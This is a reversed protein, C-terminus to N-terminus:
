PSRCHGARGGARVDAAAFGAVSRAALLAEVGFVRRVTGATAAALGAVMAPIALAAAAIALVAALYGFVPKGNVAPQRAAMWAAAALLVAGALGRWIHLRTQHERRGQAMAEVPPVQAAEWAPLLASVVAVGTGVAVALLATEWTLAVPAPRSSVYLSEVTAAVLKVASEAMLRGLLIGALAGAVGFAAAEGLFAALVGGRTAGAGAGRRDARAAAGGFGFHHQLHSFAGVVLAIYSLVRLNWRFADLMRRNEGTRAGQRALTVGPPLAARLLEEWRDLSGGPPVEILIRDLAGTRGFVRTAAALDM